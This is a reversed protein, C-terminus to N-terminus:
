NLKVKKIRAPQSSLGIGPDIGSQGVGWKRKEKSFELKKTPGKALNPFKFIFNQITLQVLGDKGGTGGRRRPRATRRSASGTTGGVDLDGQVAVIPMAQGKQEGGVDREQGGGAQVQSPGQHDDHEGERHHEEGVPDEAREEQDGDGVSVEQGVVISNLNRIELTKGPGHHQLQEQDDRVGEHVPPDMDDQKTVEQLHNDDMPRSKSNISWQVISDYKKSDVRMEEERPRAQERLLDRDQVGMSSLDGGSEGDDLGTDQGQMSIPNITAINKYKDQTNNKEYSVALKNLQKRKVIKTKRDM